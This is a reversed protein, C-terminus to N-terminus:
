GVLSGVVQKRRAKAYRRGEMWVIGEEGWVDIIVIM